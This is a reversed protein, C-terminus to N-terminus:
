RYMAKITGWTAPEVPTIDCFLVGTLDIQYDGAAPNGIWGAIPGPAGPGDPMREVNYPTDLWIENGAADVADFTYGASIALLYEGPATVFQGTIRSQLGGAVPDDDNFTIGIGTMDFLWLQTDITTYANSTTAVFTAPEPIRICYMDATLMDGTFVGWLTTFPDEGAPVQHIGPLDGADGVETWTGAIAPAAAVTLAVMLVFLVKMM